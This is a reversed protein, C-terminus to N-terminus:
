AGMNVRTRCSSSYRISTHRTVRPVCMSLRQNYFLKKETKSHSHVIGNLYTRQNEQELHKYDRLVNHFARYIYDSGTYISPPINIKNDERLLQNTEWAIASAFLLVMKGDNESAASTSNWYFKTEANIGKTQLCVIYSFNERNNFCVILIELVWM